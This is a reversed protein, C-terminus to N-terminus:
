GATIALGLRRLESGRSAASARSAKAKSWPWSRKAALPSGAQCVLRGARKAATAALPDQQDQEAFSQRARNNAPIAPLSRMSIPAPPEGTGHYGLGRRTEVTVVGKVLVTVGRLVLTKLTKVAM